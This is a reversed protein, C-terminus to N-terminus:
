PKWTTTPVDLEWAQGFGDDYGITFPRSVLCSAVHTPCAGVGGNVTYFKIPTANTAQVNAGVGDIIGVLNFLAAGAGLQWGGSIAAATHPGLMSLKFGNVSATLTSTGVTTPSDEVMAWREIEIADTSTTRWRLLSDTGFDGAGSIPEQALEPGVVNISVPAAPSVLTGSASPLSFPPSEGNNSDPLMCSEAPNPPAMPVDADLSSRPAIVVNSVEFVGVNLIEYTWSADPEWPTHDFRGDFEPSCLDAEFLADPGEWFHEHCATRNDKFWKSAAKIAQEGQGTFDYATKELWVGPADCIHEIFDSLCARHHEYGCSDAFPWDSHDTVDTCCAIVYPHEYTSDESVTQVGTVSLPIQTSGFPSSVTFTIDLDYELGCQHKVGTLGLPNEDNYICYYPAESGTDDITGEEVGTTVVGDTDTQGQVPPPHETGCSANTTLLLSLLSLPALHTAYGPANHRIPSTGVINTPHFANM